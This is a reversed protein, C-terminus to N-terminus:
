SASPGPTPQASPASPTPSPPTSSSSPSSGTPSPQSSGTSVSPTPSSPSPSSSPSSPSPSSPSPASPSPSPPASITVTGSAITRNGNLFTVRYVGAGILFLPKELENDTPNIINVGMDYTSWGIGDQEEILWTVTDTHFSRPSVLLADIIGPTFSTSEGTLTFTAPDFGSGFSVTPYTVSPTPLAHAPSASLGYRLMHYFNQPSGTWSSRSPHYAITASDAVGCAMCVSANKYYSGSVHLAHGYVSAALAGFDSLSLLPKFQGEQMGWVEVTSSGADAGAQWQNIVIQQGQGGMLSVPGLVKLSGEGLGAGASGNLGVRSFIGKWETKSWQYVSVEAKKGKTSFVLLDHDGPQFAALDKVRITGLPKPTLPASAVPGATPIKSAVGTHTGCGSIGWLAAAAGLMGLVQKRM